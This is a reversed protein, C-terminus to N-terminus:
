WGFDDCEALVLIQTVPHRDYDREVYAQVTQELANAFMEYRSEGLGSQEDLWIQNSLDVALDTLYVLDADSNNGNPPQLNRVLGCAKEVRSDRFPDAPTGVYIPAPAETPSVDTTPADTTVPAETTTVYVTKTCGVVSLLLLGGVVAVMIRKM